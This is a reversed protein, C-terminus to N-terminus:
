ELTVVNFLFEFLAFVIQSLDVKEGYEYNTLPILHNIPALQNSTIKEVSEKRLRAVIHFPIQDRSKWNSVAQPTTNLYRSVEALTFIGRSNMLKEFELFKM